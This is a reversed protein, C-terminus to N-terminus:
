ICGRSAPTLISPRRRIRHTFKAKGCQGHKKEHCKGAACLLSGGFSGPSGGGVRGPHFGRQFLHRQALFQPLHQHRIIEANERGGLAGVVFLQQMLHFFIVDATKDQARLAAREADLAALNIGGCYEGVFQLLVRFSRQEDAPIKFGSCCHSDVFTRRERGRHGHARGVIGFGSVRDAFHSSEFRLGCAHTPNERGIRVHVVIGVIRNDINAGKAFIRLADSLINGLEDVAHFFIAAQCGRFMKGPVTVDAHIRM